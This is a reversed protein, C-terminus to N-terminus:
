VRTGGRRPERDDRGAARKPLSPRLPSSEAKRARLAASLHAAHRHRVGTTLGVAGDAESGVRSKPLARSRGRRGREDPFGACRGRGGKRRRSIRSLTLSGIGFDSLGQHSPNTCVTGGLQMGGARPCPQADLAGVSPWATRAAPPGFTASDASALPM